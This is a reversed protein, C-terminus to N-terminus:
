PALFDGSLIRQESRVAGNYLYVWASIRPDELRAVERSYELGEYDDLAALVPAPDALRWLEGHVIGDPEPRYAPYQGVRFVSGRVTARGLCAARERLFRAFPNECESRLSGYTFLHDPM